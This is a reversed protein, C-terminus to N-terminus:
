GCTIAEEERCVNVVFEGVCECVCVCVVYLCTTCVSLCVGVSNGRM